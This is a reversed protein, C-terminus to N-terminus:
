KLDEQQDADHDRLYLVIKRAANLELLHRMVSIFLGLACFAAGARVAGVRSVSALFEWSVRLYVAAVLCAGLVAVVLLVLWPSYISRAPRHRTEARDTSPAAAKHRITVLRGSTPNHGGVM